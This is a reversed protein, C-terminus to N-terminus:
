EQEMTVLLPMEEARAADTVEKVKTEATDRPYRGAVGRGKHHIHLMIHTAEAASKRFYTTLVHVVFEMTTYDDNHLLVKWLRPKKTKRRTKLSSREEGRPTKESM